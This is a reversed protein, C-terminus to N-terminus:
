VQPHQFDPQEADQQGKGAPPATRPCMHPAPHLPSPLLRSPPRQRGIWVGALAEWLPPAPRPAGELRRASSAIVRAKISVACNLADRMASVHAGHQKAHQLGAVARLLLVPSPPRAPEQYAVCLRQAILPPTTLDSRYDMSDVCRQLVREGGATQKAGGGAAIATPSGCSSSPSPEM